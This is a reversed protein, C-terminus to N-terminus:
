QVRGDQYKLTAYIKNANLRISFGFRRYYFHRLLFLSCNVINVFDLKFFCNHLSKHLEISKLLM